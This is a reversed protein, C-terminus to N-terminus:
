PLRFLDSLGRGCEDDMPETAKIMAECSRLGSSFIQREGVYVFHELASESRLTPVQDVFQDDVILM